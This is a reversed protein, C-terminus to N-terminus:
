YLANYEVMYLVAVDYIAFDRDRALQCMATMVVPAAQLTIQLLSAKAIIDQPPSEIAAGTTRNLISKM